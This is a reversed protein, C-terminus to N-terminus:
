RLKQHKFRYTFSYGIGLTVENFSSVQYYKVFTRIRKFDRNIQVQYERLDQYFVSKAVVTAYIPRGIWTGLGVLAGSGSQNGDKDNRLLSINSYGIFLKLYDINLLARSFNLNTEITSISVNLGENWHIDRYYWNLDADFKCTVVLHQLAVSGTFYSNKNLNSQLGISSRVTTQKFFAPLTFELQGGVPTHLLGSGAYISIEQHDFFDRHCDERLKIRLQTQGDLQVEQPAYGIFSFVLTANPDSVNLIFEGEMSTVTGNKTGKELVAVGPLPENYEKALVTGTTKVQGFLECSVLLLLFTLIQQIQNM